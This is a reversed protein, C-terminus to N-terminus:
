PTLLQSYTEVPELGGEEVVGRIVEDNAISSWLHISMAKKSNFLTHAVGRVQGLVVSAIPWTASMQQLVGVDMRISQKIIDDRGDPVLFSWYSLHVVSAMVVVCTWFPTHNLLPAPLKILTSINEAATICKATHTERTQSPLLFQNPQVCINVNEVRGFGLNSRPQHLKITSGANVMQAQFLLEDIHGDNNVIERKSAPLHLSWNVLLGDVIDVAHYEYTADLRSVEFVKGLIRIADILYTFSSFVLEEPAFAADDYDQLTRPPYPIQGSYYEHNECPLPVDTVVDKLRFPIRPNVACFMGNATYMGWWTRRWSEELVHDGNGHIISYEARNLGIELAMSTAMIYIQASRPLDNTAHLAIAYLLLAQVTYGDQSVHHNALTRNIAEKYMETPATPLFCSGIYQIALELLPVRREKLLEILRPRPLLFPHSDYFYHLFAGITSTPKTPGPSAFPNGRPTGNLNFQNLPAGPFLNLGNPLANQLGNPSNSTLPHDYLAVDNSFDYSPSPLQVAGTALLADVQNQVLQANDPAPAPVPVPATGNEGAKNKRKGKWGRRSKVYSCEVGDARCRSCRVGGDCKLHRSRCPVCAVAVSARTTTTTTTPNQASQTRPSQVPPTTSEQTSSGGPSLHTPLTSSDSLDQAQTWYAVPDAVVSGPMQSAPSAQSSM